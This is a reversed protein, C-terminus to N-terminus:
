CGCILYIWAHVHVIVYVCMSSSQDVDYTPYMIKIENPVSYPTSVRGHENASM